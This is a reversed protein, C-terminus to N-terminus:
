LYLMFYRGVLLLLGAYVAYNVIKRQIKSIEPQEPFQQFVKNVFGFSFAEEDQHINNEKLLATLQRHNKLM